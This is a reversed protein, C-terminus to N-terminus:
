ISSLVRRRLMRDIGYLADDMVNLLTKLEAARKRRFAHQMTGADLISKCTALFAPDFQNASLFSSLPALLLM